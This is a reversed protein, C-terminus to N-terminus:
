IERTAEHGRSRQAQSNASVLSDVPRRLPVSVAIAKSQVTFCKATSPLVPLITSLYLRHPKSIPSISEVHHTSLCLHYCVARSRYSVPINCWRSLRVSALGSFYRSDTSSSTGNHYGATCKTATSGAKNTEINAQEFSRFLSPAGKM